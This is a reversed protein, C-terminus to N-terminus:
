ALGTEVLNQKDRPSKIQVIVPKIRNTTRMYLKNQTKRPDSLEEQRQKRKLKQPIGSKNKTSSSEFETVRRSNKFTKFM